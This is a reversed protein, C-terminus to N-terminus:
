KLVPEKAAVTDNKSAIRQKSQQAKRWIEVL